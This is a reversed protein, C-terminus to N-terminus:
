VLGLLTLLDCTPAFAVKELRDAYVISVNLAALPKQLLVVQTAGVNAGTLYFQARGFAIGQVVRAIAGRQATASAIAVSFLQTSVGRPIGLAPLATVAYGLYSQEYYLSLNLAGIGDLGLQAVNDVTANITLTLSSPTCTELTMGNITSPPAAFNNLGTFALSREFTLGHKSIGAARARMTARTTITLAAETVVARALAAFASPNTVDTDGALVLDYTQAGASLNLAPLSLAAFPEGAYVLQVHTAHTTAAVPLDHTFRLSLRVGLARADPTPDVRVIDFYNLTVGVSDTHYQFIADLVVFWVLLFAVILALLVCAAVASWWKRRSLRRGCCCFRKTASETPKPTATGKAIRDDDVAKESESVRDTHASYAHSALPTELERSQPQMTAMLERKPRCSEREGEEAEDEEDERVNADGM